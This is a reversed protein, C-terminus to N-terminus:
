TFHFVPNPTTANDTEFPELILLFGPFDILVFNDVTFIEAGKEYTSVLTAFNAVKQIAAHEDL